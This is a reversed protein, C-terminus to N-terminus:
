WITQGVALHEAPRQEGGGIIRNTPNGESSPGCDASVDDDNSVLDDPGLHDVGEDGTINQGGEICEHRDNWTEATVRCYSVYCGGWQISWGTEWREWRPWKARPIEGLTLELERTHSVSVYYTVMNCDGGQIIGPTHIFYWVSSVEIPNYGEQSITTLVKQM